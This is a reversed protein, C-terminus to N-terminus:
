RTLASSPTRSNRAVMTKPLTHTTSTVGQRSAPAPRCPSSTLHRPVHLSRLGSWRDRRNRITRRRRLRRELIRIDRPLQLGGGRSSRAWHCRHGGPHPCDDRRQGSSSTSRCPRQSFWKSELPHSSHHEPLENKAGVASTLAVALANKAQLYPRM